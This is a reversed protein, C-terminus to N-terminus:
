GGKEKSDVDKAMADYRAKLQQDSQLSKRIQNFAKVGVYNRAMDQYTANIQEITAKRMEAIEKLFAKEEPTANAAELKTSDDQIKILENYRTVPMVTNSQVKEAVQERLTQQMDEVSDMTIVYKKLDEDSIENSQAHGAAAYLILFCAVLFRMLNM